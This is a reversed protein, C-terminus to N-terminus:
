PVLTPKQVDFTSIIKTKSIKEFWLQRNHRFTALFLDLILLVLILLLLVIGGDVFLLSKSDVTGTISLLKTLVGIVVANFIPGLLLRQAFLFNDKTLSVTALKLKVVSMGITKAFFFEPLVFVTITGLLISLAFPLSTPLVFLVINLCICDIFVAIGRRAVSVKDSKLRSQQAIEDLNPLLPEFIITSFYGILSGLTNIMLDDVDFLRYPRPYIGFLASRQICEFSLTLLFSYVLTKFFGMRYKYRLYCGFPLTLFLNFLPQIFASSKMAHIWSRPHEISFGPNQRFFEEIFLFPHLNQKPGHFNKLWELDPLPLMTLAYACILYFIFSYNVFLKWVSLAGYKRYQHILFPLTFLIAIIPFLNMGTRIADIYPIFRSM